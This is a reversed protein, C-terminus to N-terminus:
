LIYYWSIHDTSPIVNILNLTYWSSTDSHLSFLLHLHQCCTYVLSPVENHVSSNLLSTFLVTLICTRRSSNSFLGSLHMHLCPAPCYKACPPCLRHRMAGLTRHIPYFVTRAIHNSYDYCIETVCVPAIVM